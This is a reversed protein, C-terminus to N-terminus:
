GTLQDRQKRSVVGDGSFVSRPFLAEKCYSRAMDSIMREEETLQDRLLLPDEWEFRAKPASEQMM